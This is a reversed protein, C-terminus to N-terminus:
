FSLKLGDLLGDGMHLRKALEEEINGLGGISDTAKKMPGKVREMIKKELGKKLKSAETKVLNKVASKLIHDLDSRIDIQYDKLTGKVDAGLNFSEVNSLASGLATTMADKDAPEDLSFAVDSFLGEINLDLRDGIMNMNMSIDSVGRNLTLSIPARKGMSIDNLALQNLTLRIKNKPSGSVVYDAVGDLNLSKIGKMNRGLFAFTMPAGLVPQDPTINHMKGTLDGVDLLANVKLNRILFDPLPVTEAFRVDVGKGRKYSVEDKGAGKEPLRNLYPKIKTYWAAAKQLWGCFNEGFIMRSMNAMGEPSLSYKRVLRAIDGAPAKLMDSAKKRLADIQKKFDDKAKRIMELDKEIDKKLTAIDGATGLIAGFSGSGSKLKKIRKKYRDLKKEDPLSDLKEKWIKKLDASETELSTALALSNLSEAQLIKAIDPLQFSPIKFEGCIKKMNVKSLVNDKSEATNEKKAASKIAGSTKRPTNFKLGSVIVNNIIIKRRILNLAELDIKIVSVAVINEMPADPNTVAVGTLELGAPFLSLDASAVDVKAGVARTGYKQVMQKVIKDAFLFWFLMLVLVFCLFVVIGQWRLWRNM